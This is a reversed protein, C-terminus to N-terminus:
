APREMATSARNMRAHVAKLEDRIMLKDRKLRQLRFDDPYPRLSESRIDLEIRRHENKLSLFRKFLKAHHTAAYM